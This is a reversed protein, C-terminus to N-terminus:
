GPNRGFSPVGDPLEAWSPKSDTWICAQPTCASPDDMVGIKLFVAGPMIAVQSWLQSGCDACFFRTVDRGSEGSVTYSTPSGQVELAAEPVSTFTACASGTARQCDKCYCSMARIEDPRAVFRVAGCLCGGNIETM